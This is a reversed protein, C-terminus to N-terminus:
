DFAARHDKMLCFRCCVARGAACRREVLDGWL